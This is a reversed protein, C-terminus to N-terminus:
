RLTEKERKMSCTRNVVRRAGDILKLSRYSGASPGDVVRNDRSIRRQNKRERERERPNAM